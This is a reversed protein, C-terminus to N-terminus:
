SGPHHFELCPECLGHTTRPHPQAVWVPVWDWRGPHRRNRVRRCNACVSVLGFADEYEGAEAACPTAPHPEEVLRAHQVLITDPSAPFAFMRFRRLARPSSCEYDHQWVLGTRLAEAFGRIYFDRLVEPLADMLSSGLGWRALVDDGDNDHAFARWGRNTRTIRLDASLVYATDASEELERFVVDIDV